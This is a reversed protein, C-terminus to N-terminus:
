NELILKCTYTCQNETLIQILYIGPRQMSLDLNLVAPSRDFRTNILQGMGNYVKTVVKQDPLANLNLNFQGNGPNPYIRLPAEEKKELVAIGTGLPPSVKTIFFDTRSYQPLNTSGFIGGQLTSGTAFANGSADACVANGSEYGLLELSDPPGAVRTAWDFKGANNIKAIFIDSSDASVLSVPGFQTGTSDGFQGTIYLDTGDTGIGRARDVWPGGGSSAWMVNGNEDYCTVFVDAMGRSILEESGFYVSANFEGTVYILGKNDLTLAWAVNDYPGKSSSQVWQLTGDPSYKALFTNYYGTSDFPPLSGFICGASYLGCVYVNGAADCGLGKAEDRGPGGAQRVWLFNGDKDYKAIFMDNLGSTSGTITTGGLFTSTNFDTSTGFYATDNFFGAMYVNGSNDYAVAQAKDNYYGGAERAWLLNGQLDYNAVFADNDGIAWINLPSGPFIIKTLGGARAALGNQLNQIEGSIFINQSKDCALAHAYDGSPGGGTRIWNLNGSPSYSATFIDHNGQNPLTVSGFVANMEYKGATYINGSNDMSIGYGYDYEYLGGRQAWEFKQAGLSSAFLSLFLTPAILSFNKM